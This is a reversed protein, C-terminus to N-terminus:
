RAKVNQSSDFSSFCLTPTNGTSTLLQRLIQLWKSASLNWSSDNAQVSIKAPTMEQVSIKAPTMEQVSIKAPTMEQVSIKAPTM